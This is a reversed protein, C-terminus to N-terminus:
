SLSVPPAHALLSRQLVLEAFTRKGPPSSNASVTWSLASERTDDSIASFFALLAGTWVPNAILKAAVSPTAQLNKCCPLDDCGNQKQPQSPQQKAHMPCDSPMDSKAPRAAFACHNTAAFWATISAIVVVLRLPHRFSRVLVVNSAIGLNAEAFDLLCHFLEAVGIFSHTPKGRM